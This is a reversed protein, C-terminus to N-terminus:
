EVTVFSVIKRPQDEYIDLLSGGGIVVVVVLVVLDRSDGIKLPKLLLIFLIM